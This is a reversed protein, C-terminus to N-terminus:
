LQFVIGSFSVATLRWTKQSLTTQSVGERGPTLMKFLPICYSELENFSVLWEKYVCILLGAHLPLYVPAM